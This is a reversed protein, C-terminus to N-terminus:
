REEELLFLSNKDDFGSKISNKASFACLITKGGKDSAVMDDHEFFVLLMAYYPWWRSEFELGTSHLNDTPLGTLVM